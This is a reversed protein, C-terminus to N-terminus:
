EARLAFPRRRFRLRFEAGAEEKKHKKAFFASGLLGSEENDFFVFAVREKMVQPMAHYLEVLTIVGSTNDNATWKNAPGGILLYYMAGLMAFYGALISGYDWRTLLFVVDRVLWMVLLFPIVILLQYGLYIWFNTPTIFNPFPMKVCTDYHATLLIKASASDGLILNRNKKDEEVTLEPFVSKMYDIFRTKQEKTKRVMHDKLITESVGTM